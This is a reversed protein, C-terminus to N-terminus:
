QTLAINPLLKQQRYGPLCAASFLSCDLSAFYMLRLSVLTQVYQGCTLVNVFNAIISSRRSPSAASEAAHVNFHNLYCGYEPKQKNSVSIHKRFGFLALEDIVSAIAATPSDDPLSDAAITPMAIMAHEQVNYQKNTIM